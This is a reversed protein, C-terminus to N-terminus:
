GLTGRREGSPKACRRRRISVDPVRRPTWSITSAIPAPPMPSTYRAPSVFSRRSTAISSEVARDIDVTLM